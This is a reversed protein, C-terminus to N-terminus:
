PVKPWPGTDEEAIDAFRSIMRELGWSPDLLRPAGDVPVTRLGTLFEAHDGEPALVAVLDSRQFRLDGVKRWEREWWFEKQGEEWTGM